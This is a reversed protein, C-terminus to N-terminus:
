SLDWKYNIDGDDYFIFKDRGIVDLANNLSNLVKESEIIEERKNMSKRTRRFNNLTDFALNVEDHEIKTNLEYDEIALQMDLIKSLNKELKDM